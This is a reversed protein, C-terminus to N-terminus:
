NKELDSQELSNVIDRATFHLRGVLYTEGCRACEHYARGHVRGINDRNGGKIRLYPVDGWWGSGRPKHGLLRCLIRM